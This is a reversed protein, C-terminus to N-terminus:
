TIDDAAACHVKLKIVDLWHREVAQGSQDAIWFGYVTYHFGPMAAVEAGLAQQGASSGDGILFQELQGVMAAQVANADEGADADGMVILDLEVEYYGTFAIHEVASNVAVVVAPLKVEETSQGLFLNATSLPTGPLIKSKVWALWAGESTQRIGLPSNAM